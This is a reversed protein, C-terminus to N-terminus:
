KISIQSSLHEASTANSLLSEIESTSGSHELQAQEPLNKMAKEVDYSGERNKRHWVFYGLGAFAVALVGGLIGGAIGAIGIYQGGNREPLKPGEVDTSNFIPHELVEKSNYDFRSVSRIDESTIGYSSNSEEIENILDNIEKTTVESSAFDFEQKTLSASEITVDEKMQYDIEETTSGRLQSSNYLETTTIDITSTGETIKQSHLAKIFPSFTENCFEKGDYYTNIKLKKINDFVNTLLEYNKTGQEFSCLDTSQKSYGNEERVWGFSGLTIIDRYSEIPSLHGNGDSHKIAFSKVASNYSGKVEFSMYNNSRSIIKIEVGNNTISDYFRQLQNMQLLERPM